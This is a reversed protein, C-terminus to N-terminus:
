GWTGLWVCVWVGVCPGSVGRPLGQPRINLPCNALTRLARQQTGLVADCLGELKPGEARPGTQEQGNPEM